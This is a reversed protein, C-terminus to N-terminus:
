LTRSKYPQAIRGAAWGGEEWRWGIESTLDLDPSLKRALPPHVRPHLPGGLAPFPENPTPPPGGAAPCSSTPHSYYLFISTEYQHYFLYKKSACRQSVSKKPINRTHIVTYYRSVLTVCVSNPLTLLPPKEMGFHLIPEFM